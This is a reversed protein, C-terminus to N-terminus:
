LFMVWNDIVVASKNNSELFRSEWGFSSQEVSFELLLGNKIVCPCCNQISGGLKNTLIPLYRCIITLFYCGIPASFLFNAEIITFFTWALLAHIVNWSTFYFKSREDFYPLEIPRSGKLKMSQGKLKVKMQANLLNLSSYDFMRKYSGTCKYDWSNQLGILFDGKPRILRFSFLSFM